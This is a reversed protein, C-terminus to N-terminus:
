SRWRGWRCEYHEEHDSRNGALKKAKIVALNPVTMLHSLRMLRIASYRVCIPVLRPLFALEWPKPKQIM